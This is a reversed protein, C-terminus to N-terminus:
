QEKITFDKGHSLVLPRDGDYNDTVGFNNYYDGDEDMFEKIDSIIDAESPIVTDDDTDLRADLIEKRKAELELLYKRIAKTGEETLVIERM